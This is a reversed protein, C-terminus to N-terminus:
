ESKGVGDLGALRRQAVSYTSAGPPEGEPPEVKSYAGAAVKPLEYAEAMRGLAYWDQPELVDNIRSDVVKPLM